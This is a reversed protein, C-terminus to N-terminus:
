PAMMILHVNTVCTIGLIDIHKFHLPGIRCGEAGIPDIQDFTILPLCIEDKEPIIFSDGGELCVPEHCIQILQVSNRDIFLPCGIRSGM